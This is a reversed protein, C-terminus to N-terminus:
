NIADLTENDLKSKAYQQWEQYYTDIKKKILPQFLMTAINRTNWYDLTYKPQFGMKFHMFISKKRDVTTESEFTNLGLETLLHYRHVGIYSGLKKGQFQKPVAIYHGVGVRPNKHFVGVSTIGMVEKKKNYLFLTDLVKIVPHYLINKEFDQEDYNRQFADNFVQLWIQVDEHKKIDMSSFTYSSNLANAPITDATGQTCVILTGFGFNTRQLRHLWYDLRNSFDSTM